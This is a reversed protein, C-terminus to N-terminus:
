EIVSLEDIADLDVNCRPIGAADLAKHLASITIVSWQINPM